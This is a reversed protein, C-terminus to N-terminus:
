RYDNQVLALYDLEGEAVVGGTIFSMHMSCAHRYVFDMCMCLQVQICVYICTNM